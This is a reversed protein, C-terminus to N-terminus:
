FYVKFILAQILTNWCYQVLENCGMQGWTSDCMKTLMPEPLSKDGNQGPRLTDFGLDKKQMVHKFYQHSTLLANRGFANILSENLGM